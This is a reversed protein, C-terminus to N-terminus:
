GLSYCLAYTRLSLGGQLTRKWPVHQEVSEQEGGVEMYWRVNCTNVVNMLVRILIRPKPPPNIHGLCIWRYLLTM